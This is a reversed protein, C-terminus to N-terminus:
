PEGHSLQRVSPRSPYLYQGVGDLPEGPDRPSFRQLEQNRDLWGPPYKQPFQILLLPGFFLLGGAGVAATRTSGNSSWEWGNGGSVAGLVIVIPIATFIRFATSLRDLPREPYDVSFRVPHDMQQM